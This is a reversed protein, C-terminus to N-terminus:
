IIRRFDNIIYYIDNQNIKIISNKELLFTLFPFSIWLIFEKKMSFDNSMTQLKKYIDEDLKGDINFLDTDYEPLNDSAAEYTYAVETNDKKFVLLVIALVAAILVASIAGIWIYNARKGKM